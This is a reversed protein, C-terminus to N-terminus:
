ISERHPRFEESADGKIAAPERKDRTDETRTTDAKPNRGERGPRSEERLRGGERMTDEEDPTREKASLGEKPKRDEAATRDERRPRSEKTTISEMSTSAEKSLVPEISPGGEIVGIAAKSPTAKESATGKKPSAAKAPAEKTPTEKRPAGKSIAEQGSTPGEQPTKGKSEASDAREQLKKKAAIILPPDPIGRAFPSIGPATNKLLNPTFSERVSTEKASKGETSTEKATTTKVPVEKALTEKSPDEEIFVEKSPARKVADAQEKLRNKAAVILPPDPIGRAFPSIRPILNQQEESAPPDNVSVKKTTADKAPGEDAPAEKANGPAAVGRRTPARKARRTGSIGFKETAGNGELDFRVKPNTPKESLELGANRAIAIARERRATAREMRAAAEDEAATTEEAAGRIGRMSDKRQVDRLAQIVDASGEADIADQILKARAREAVSRRAIKERDNMGEEVAERAPKYVPATHQIITSSVAFKYKMPDKTDNKLDELILEQKIVQDNWGQCKDHLYGPVLEFTAECANSVIEYLRGSDLPLTDRRPGKRNSPPYWTRYPIM